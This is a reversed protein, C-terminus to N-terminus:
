GGIWAVRVGGYVAWPPGPEFFRGGFANVAVSATYSEDFLNSSGVFPVIRTAGGGLGEHTLLLDATWCALTRTSNVDDVPM